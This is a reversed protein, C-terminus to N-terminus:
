DLGSPATLGTIVMITWTYDQHETIKLIKSQVQKGDSQRYATLLHDGLSVNLIWRNEGQVLDFQHVGDLHVSVTEGFTNYCSLRARHEITWTYDTRSSVDLTEQAVPEGNVRSRAEMLHSERTVNDIEASNKYTLWFRFVGDMYVDVPDEWKSVVVIDAEGAEPAGPSKCSWASVLLVAASLVAALSRGAHTLTRRTPQASM